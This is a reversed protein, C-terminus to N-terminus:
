SKMEQPLSDRAFEAFVQKVELASRPRDSPQKELCRYVLVRIAAPVKCNAPFERPKESVHAKVTAVVNRGVIPPVGTLCEFLICGLAYIDTRPDLPEGKCQEPSM